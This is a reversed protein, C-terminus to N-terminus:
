FLLNHESDWCKNNYWKRGRHECDSRTEIWPLSTPYITDASTSASTYSLFSIVMQITLCGASLFIILFLGSVLKKIIVKHQYM